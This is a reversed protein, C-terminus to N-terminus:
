TKGIAKTMGVLRRHAPQPNFPPLLCSRVGLGRTDVLKLCTPPKALKGQTDIDYIATAAQARLAAKLDKNHQDLQKKLLSSDTRSKSIANSAIRSFCDETQQQNRCEQDRLAQCPVCASSMNVKGIM